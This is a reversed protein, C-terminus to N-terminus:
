NVFLLVPREEHFEAEDLTLARLIKKEVVECRESEYLGQSKILYIDPRSELFGIEGQLLEFAGRRGLRKHGGV